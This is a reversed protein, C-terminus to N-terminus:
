RCIKNMILGIDFTVEEVYVKRLRGLFLDVMGGGLNEYSRVAIVQRDGWSSLSSESLKVSHIDLM